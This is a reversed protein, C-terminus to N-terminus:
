VTDNRTTNVATNVPNLASLYQPYNVSSDDGSDVSSNDGSDVSSNLSSNATADATADVTTDKVANDSTCSLTSASALDAATRFEKVHNAYIFAGSTISTVYQWAYSTTRATLEASLNTKIEIAASATIATGTAITNAWSYGM